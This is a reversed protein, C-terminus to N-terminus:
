SRPRSRARGRVIRGPAASRSTSRGTSAAPRASRSHPSCCPASPAGASRAWTLVDGQIGSPFDGPTRHVAGVSSDAFTEAYLRAADEAGGDYWLWVTNKAPKLM